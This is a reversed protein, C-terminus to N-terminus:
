GRLLRAAIAPVETMSSATAAAGQAMAPPGYGWLAFICPVGAGTAAKVDNAHDGVMVTAAPDGGAAHLTAILHAPDPKRVPFSDGGGVAAFLGEVGLAALLLDAAKVPKNTCVALRWGAAALDRLTAEVGPFLRSADAFHQDYDARFAALAFPDPPLGRAALARNVLVEVGDGIMGVVEPRAFLPLDRAAMLRNLSSMLDDASDVLTGDLDLLLTPTPLTLPMDFDSILISGSAKSVMVPKGYRSAMSAVAM